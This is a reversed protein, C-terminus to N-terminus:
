YIRELIRESRKNWTNECVRNYAANVRERVEAQNAFIHEVTKLFDPMSGAPIFYASDTGLVERFAPTDSVVVARRAAMYEFLKMPSTQHHLFDNDVDEPVYALIDCAKVYLPVEEISTHPVLCVRSEVELKLAYSKASAIEADNGGVLLLTYDRPLERLSRILFNVGKDEAMPHFRGIYGIIMKSRPLSLNDRLVSRDDQVREFREIDVANPVVAGVSRVRPNRQCAREYLGKTVFILKDSWRYIIGNALAGYDGHSEFVMTYRFVPRFLIALIGLRIDNAFVTHSKGWFHNRIFFTPM